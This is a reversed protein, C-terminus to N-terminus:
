DEIQFQEVQQMREIKDLKCDCGIAISMNRRLVVVEKNDIEEVYGVDM